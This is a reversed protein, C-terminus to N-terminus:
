NITSDRILKLINEHDSRSQKAARRSRNTITQHQSNMRKHDKSLSSAEQEPISSFSARQFM